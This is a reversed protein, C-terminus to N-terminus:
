DDKVVEVSLGQWTANIIMDTWIEIEHLALRICTSRWSTVGLLGADKRKTEREARTTDDTFVLDGRQETM